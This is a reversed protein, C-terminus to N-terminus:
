PEFAASGTVQHNFQGHALFYLIQEIVERAHMIFTHGRQVVLFDQMGALKASEVSVKGDNPSPLLRSFVPDMSKNGTIIGLSFRAPGLQRPVSDPGTGLESGALGNLLKFWWYSGLRDVIESGQNPPSLMVVRGLKSIRNHELYYRLLIGGMSHTVFHITEAADCHQLAEPITQQALTKIDAKRSPYGTNVVQYGEQQLAKELGHMSWSSRLLGHLLIVYKWGM